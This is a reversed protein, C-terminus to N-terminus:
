RGLLKRLVRRLFGPSRSSLDLAKYHRQNLLSTAHQQAGFSRPGSVSTSKSDGVTHDGARYPQGAWQLLPAFVRQPHHCEEFWIRARRAREQAGEIEQSLTVLAQALSEASGTEVSSVLGKGSLQGAFDCTVTTAIPLEFLTWDILRNRTGLEGEYCPLDVNVAVDALRYIYPIDRTLVWGLFHYRDRHSSTAILERFRTATRTNHGAIEGGTSIFHLRPNQAMALELGRYLTDVDAWSNYGGSWLVKFADTPVTMSVPRSQPGLRTELDVMARSCAPLCHVLKKGETAGNLRGTLALQGTLAHAQSDSCVSFQDGSTLAHLLLPWQVQLSGDHNHTAAQMQKEAFPDGFFDMWRPLTTELRASLDNMIDTTSIIGDFRGAMVLTALTELSAEPHYALRRVEMTEGQSVMPPISYSTGDNNGRAVAEGSGVEGFVSVVLTVRHGAAALITAFQHVRLGTAFLRDGSDTPLPGVGLVLLNSV